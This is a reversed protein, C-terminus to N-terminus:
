GLEEERCIGYADPHYTLPPNGLKEREVNALDVCGKCVPERKGNVRISPVHVPNFTFPRHCAICDGIMFAYGNM